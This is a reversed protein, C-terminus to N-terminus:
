VIDCRGMISAVFHKIGIKAMYKEVADGNEAVIFSRDEYGLQRECIKKSEHTVSYLIKQSATQQPTQNGGLNVEGSRSKNFPSNM